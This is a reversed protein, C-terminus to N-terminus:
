TYVKLPAPYLGNSMKMVQQRAKKFVQDKVFDFGFAFEMVKNVLGTKERNVKLKGNSLDKATQIAVKELYQITNQESSDLGPGLPNVLMDVIGLKKARDAKLVKGTLGLDLATPISTLKPLRVTGGAIFLPIIYTCTKHIKIKKTIIM